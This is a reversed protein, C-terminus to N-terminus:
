SSFTKKFHKTMCVGKFSRQQSTFLKLLIENNIFLMTATDFAVNNSPCM